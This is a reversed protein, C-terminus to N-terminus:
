GYLGLEVPRPQAGSKLDKLAEHYGWWYDGHRQSPQPDGYEHAKQLAEAWTAYAHQAHAKLEDLRESSVDGM